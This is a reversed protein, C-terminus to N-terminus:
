AIFLKFWRISLITVLGDQSFQKQEYAYRSSGLVTEEQLLEFRDM